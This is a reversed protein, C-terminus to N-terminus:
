TPSLFTRSINTSYDVWVSFYKNGLRDPPGMPGKNDGCILGGIVDTPAHKGSDKKSQNNKTQKGEACAVCNTRTDDTIKIGPGPKKAIAIIKDFNLHGLRLHFDMLTGEMPPPPPQEVIEELSTVLAQGPTLNSETSLVIDGNPPIENYIMKTRVYYIGRRIQVDFLSTYSNKLKICLNGAITGLECGKSALMGLSMINKEVRPHWHVENIQKRQRYKGEIRVSGVKNIDIISGNASTARKSCPQINDLMDRWAVFHLSSGSDLIWEMHGDPVTEYDLTAINLVYDMSNIVENKIKKRCQRELHGRKGCHSCRKEGNGYNIGIHNVSNKKVTSNSRCITNAYVSIELAHTKYDTRSPNYKSQLQVQLEPSSYNVMSDVITREFDGGM